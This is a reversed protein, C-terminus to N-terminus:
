RRRNRQRGCGPKPRAEAEEAFAAKVRDLDTPRRALEALAIRCVDAVDGDWGDTFESVTKIWELGEEVTVAEYGNDDDITGNRGCMFALWLQGAEDELLVNPIKSWTAHMQCLVEVNGRPQGRTAEKVKGRAAATWRDVMDQKKPVPKAQRKM